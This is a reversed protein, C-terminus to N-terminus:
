DKSYIRILLFTIDKLYINSLNSWHERREVIAIGAHDIMLQPLPLEDIKISVMQHTKFLKVM